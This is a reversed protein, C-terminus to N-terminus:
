NALSLYNEVFEFDIESQNDFLPGDLLYVMKDEPVIKWIRDSPTIVYSPNGSELSAVIDYVSPIEHWPTCASNVVGHTHYDAKHEWTFKIDPFSCNTDTGRKPTTYILENNENSAISGCYEVQSMITLIQAHSLADHAVDDLKHGEAVSIASVILLGPLTYKFM